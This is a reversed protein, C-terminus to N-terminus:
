QYVAFSNKLTEFIKNFKTLSIFETHKWYYSRYQGVYYLCFQFIFDCPFKCLNAYYFEIPTKNMCDDFRCDNTTYMLKSLLKQKVMSLNSFTIGM